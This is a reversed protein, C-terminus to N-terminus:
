PTTSVGSTPGCDGAPPASRTNLLRSNVFDFVDAFQRPAGLASPNDGDGNLPARRGELRAVDRVLDAVVETSASISFRNLVGRIASCAHGV